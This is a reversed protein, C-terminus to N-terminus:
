ALSHILKKLKELTSKDTKEKLPNTGHLEIQMEVVRCGMEQFEKVRDTGHALITVDNARALTEILERRFSYLGRTVNSAIVINM